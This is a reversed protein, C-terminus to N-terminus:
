SEGDELLPLKSRALAAADSGPYTEILREFATRAQEPKRLSLSTDGYRLLAKPVADGAPFRTFVGEFAELARGPAGRLLWAEGLSLLANDALVDHPHAELFAQLRETGAELKGAVLLARAAEYDAVAAGRDRLDTETPLPPARDAGAGRAPAESRGPPAEDRGLSIFAYADEEGDPERPAQPRPELRVVELEEPLVYASARTGGEAGSRRSVLDMQRELARLRSEGRAVELQLERLEEHLRDVERRSAAREGACGALLTALLPLLYIPPTRSM